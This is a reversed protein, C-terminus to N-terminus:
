CKKMTHKKWSASIIEAKGALSTLAETQQSWSEIETSMQKLLVSRNGLRSRAEQLDKPKQLSQDEKPPPPKMEVEQPDKFGYGLLIQKISDEPVGDKRISSEVSKWDQM